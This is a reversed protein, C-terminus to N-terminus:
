AARPLQQLLEQLQKPKMRRIDGLTVGFLAYAGQGYKARHADIADMIRGIMDAKKERAELIKMARPRSIGQAVLQEVSQAQGQMVRKQRRMIELQDSTLEQLTGDTQEIQRAKVPYVHGCTPCAPEPLHITFCKPCTSVRDVGPEETQDAKRKGRKVGELTWQREEDPLGHRYVNGAHDLLIATKGPYPRLARGWRQMANVLSETPALDVLCDITVDKQAISGLDFGESVLNVQTLVLVRGDAFDTIAQDRESDDISGDIHAAPIGAANFESAVHQSHSVSVCFVVTRLGDAHKRWHTIADGTVTKKDVREQLESAVFDGMRKHVGDLDIQQPATFIRYPSLYGNDILWRMSPGEILTDAYGGRGIGLGKGDLREPSATVVLGLGGDEGCYRDMVRGWQTDAVVHHGEDQVVLLKRGACRALTADIVSFRGVITQVSGVMTTANAKVFVRGFARFHAVMISRVVQAAAIVQHEVGFRALSLSIQKIIEKRHAAILVPNGRAAAGHTIYSFMVTKGSGTSAVVLPCRFGQKYAARVENVIDQQYNRLSPTNM